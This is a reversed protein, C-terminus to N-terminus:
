RTLFSRAGVIKHNIMSVYPHIMVGSKSLLSKLHLVAHDKTSGCEENLRLRVEMGTLGNTKRSISEAFDSKEILADLRDLSEISVTASTRTVAVVTKGDKAVGIVGDYKKM